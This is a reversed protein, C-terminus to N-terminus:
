KDSKLTKSEGNLDRAIAKPITMSAYFQLVGGALTFAIWDTRGVGEYYMCGLALGFLVASWFETRILRRTRMSVGKPIVTFIRGVLDLAVGAAFLHRYDVATIKLIPFAVAALILLLGLNAMWTSVAARQQLKKDSM